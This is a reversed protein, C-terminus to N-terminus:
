PKILIHRTHFREEEIAILQIIHYGFETKVPESIEGESLALAAEEYEAVLQGKGMLGMTGGLAASGPDDSYQRALDAFSAGELLEQRIKLATEWARKENESLSKDQTQACLSISVLCYCFVITFKM